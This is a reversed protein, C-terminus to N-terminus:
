VEEKNKNIGMTYSICLADAMHEDLIEKEINLLLSISEIMEEKSAKGNDTITKKINSPVFTSIKLNNIGTLLYIIGTVMNTPLISSSKRRQGKKNNTYFLHECGIFNPKYEDIVKQIENNLYLLRESLDKKNTTKLTKYLLVKDISIKGAKTEKFQLVGIGCSALGQDIGLVIFKEM